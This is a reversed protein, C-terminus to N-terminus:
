RVPSGSRTRNCAALSGRELPYLVLQGEATLLASDCRVVPQRDVGRRCGAIGRQNGTGTDAVYWQVDWSDRGLVGLDPHIGEASHRELGASLLAHYQDGEQRPVTAPAVRQKCGRKESSGDGRKQAREATQGVSPYPRVNELILQAM